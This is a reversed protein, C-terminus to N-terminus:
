RPIIKDRQGTLELRYLLQSKILQNCTRTRCPDGLYPPEYVMYGLMYPRKFPKSQM